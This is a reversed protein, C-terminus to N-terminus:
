RGDRIQISCVTRDVGEHIYQWASQGAMLAGTVGLWLLMVLMLARGCDTSKDEPDEPM